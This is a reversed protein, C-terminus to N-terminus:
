FEDVSYSPTNITNFHDVDRNYATIAFRCHVSYSACFYPLTFILPAVFLSLLIWGSFSVVLGFFDGGTRKSIITSMNVAEASDIEDNSVFIFPALYFKLMIFLLALIAFIVVFSNLAWLNSAWVPLSMGFVEYVSENSLIWIVLCPFFAIVAAVAFRALLLLTFELARKYEKVSSFYKFIVLASDECKWILRRFYYLVGLTLPSLAFVFSALLVVVFGIEAAFVSVLSAILSCIFYTFILVCCVAVSSLFKDILATKATQKVVPSPALM